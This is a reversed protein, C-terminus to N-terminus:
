FSSRIEEFTYVEFLQQDRVIFDRGDRSLYLFPSIINSRNSININEVSQVATQVSGARDRLCDVSSRGRATQYLFNERKREEGTTRQEM